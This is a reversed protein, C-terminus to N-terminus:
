QIKQGAHSLFSSCSKILAKLLLYDSIEATTYGDPKIVLRLQFPFPPTPPPLSRDPDTGQGKKETRTERGGVFTM